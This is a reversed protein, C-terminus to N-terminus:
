YWTGAPTYKVLEGHQYKAEIVREKGNAKLSIINEKAFLAKSNRGIVKLHAAHARDFAKQANPGLKAYGKIMVESGKM